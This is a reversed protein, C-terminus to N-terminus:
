TRWSCRTTSPRRTPAAQRRARRARGRSAPRTEADLRRRGGRRPSRWAGADVAVAIRGPAPVRGRAVAGRRGRAEDARRSAGRRDRGRASCTASSTSGSCRRSVRATPRTSSSSPPIATSRCTARMTALEKSPARRSPTSASPARPRALARGRARARGRPLRVARGAPRRDQGRHGSRRSTTPRTARSGSSTPVQEPTVGYRAFVREPTYVHVDAVGRPTMM